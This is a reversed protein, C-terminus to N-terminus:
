LSEGRRDNRSFFFRKSGRISLERWSARLPTESQPQAGGSRKLCQSIMIQKLAGSGLTDARIWAPEAKPLVHANTKKLAMHTPRMVHSGHRLLFTFKTISSGGSESFTKFDSPIAEQLKTTCFLLSMIIIIAMGHIQYPDM